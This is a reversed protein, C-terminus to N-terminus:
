LFPSILCPFVIEFLYAGMPHSVLLHHIAHSLFYRLYHVLGMLTKPYM